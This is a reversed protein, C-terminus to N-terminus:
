SRGFLRLRSTVSAPTLLNDSIAAIEEAVRWAEELAALEGEMARRETEEHTSMELALRVPYPLETLSGSYGPDRAISAAYSTAYNRELLTVAEQVRIRSGGFRNIAPLLIGVAREADSGTLLLDERKRAKLVDLSRYDPVYRATDVGLTGRSRFHQMVDDPPQLAWTDDLRIIRFKELDRRKVQINELGDGVPIVGVDENPNGNIVIRARKLGFIFFGAVGIGAAALGFYVAGIAGLGAGAKLLASRRRRGFQDGYRWAAFEPRQPAGIRVLDLGDRLRALGINETSARKRTDRYLRDCAEVIEWREELPSLNWRECARCVVWLRGRDPDFAIRRGVPFSELVDNSGLSSNCFLCTSYM